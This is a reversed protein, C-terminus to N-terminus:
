AAVLPFLPTPNLDNLGNLDNLANFFGAKTKFMKFAKFKQVARIEHRRPSDLFNRLVPFQKLLVFSTATFFSATM